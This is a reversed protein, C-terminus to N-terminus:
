EVCEWWGGIPLHPCRHMPKSVVVEKGKDDLITYNSAEESVVTYLQDLRFDKVESQNKVGYIEVKMM